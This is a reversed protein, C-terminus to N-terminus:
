EAQSVFDRPEGTTQLAWRGTRLLLSLAGPQLSAAASRKQRPTRGAEATTHPPSACCTDISRAEISEHLRYWSEPLHFSKPLPFSAYSHARRRNFLTIQVRLAPWRDPPALQQLYFVVAQDFVVHQGAVPATRHVSAPLITGNADSIALEVCLRGSSKGPFVIGYLHLNLTSGDEELESALKIRAM